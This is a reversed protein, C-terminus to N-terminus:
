SGPTYGNDRLMQDIAELEAPKLHQRAGIMLENVHLLAQEHEGSADKLEELMAAGLRMYTRVRANSMPGQLDIDPLAHFNEAIAAMVNVREMPDPHKSVSPHESAGILAFLQEMMQGLESDMGAPDANGLEVLDSHIASRMSKAPGASLRDLYGSLRNLISMRVQTDAQERSAQYLRVFEADFRPDAAPMGALGAILAHAIALRQDSAFADSAAAQLADRTIAEAAAPSLAFRRESLTTLTLMRRQAPLSRLYELISAVEKKHQVLPESPRVNTLLYTLNSLASARNRGPMRLSEPKLVEGSVLLYGAERHEPALWYVVGPLNAIIPGCDAHQRVESTAAILQELAAHRHSQPLINEIGQELIYLHPPRHEMPLARVGALVDQFQELTRVSQARTALQRRAAESNTGGPASFSVRQPGTGAPAGTPLSHPLAPNSPRSTPGGVPGTRQPPNVPGGADPPIGGAGGPGRVQDM